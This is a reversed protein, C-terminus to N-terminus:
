WHEDNTLNVDLFKATNSHLLIFRDLRTVFFLRMTKALVSPSNELHLHYTNGKSNQKSVILKQKLIM